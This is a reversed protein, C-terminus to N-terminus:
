GAFLGPVMQGLLHYLKALAKTFQTMSRERNVIAKQLNVRAEELDVPLLAAAEVKERIVRENERALEINKDARAIAKRSEVYKNFTQRIETELNQTLVELEAIVQERKERSERQESANRGGDYVDWAYVLNATYVDANHDKNRFILHHNYDFQFDLTTKDKAHALAINESALDVAKLQARIAPNTRKAERIIDELTLEIEKLGTDPRFAVNADRALGTLRGIRERLVVRNNEIELIEQRIEEIDLEVALIQQKLTLAGRNKENIVKLDEQRKALEQQKLALRKAEFLFDLYVDVLRLLLDQQLRERKVIEITEGVRAARPLGALRDGHYVPVKITIGNILAHSDFIDGFTEAAADTFTRGQADLLSPPFLDSIVGFRKDFNTDRFVSKLTALPLQQAKAFQLRRHAANIAHKQAKLEFNKEVLGAILEPLGMLLPGAVIPPPAIEAQGYYPNIRSTRSPPPRRAPPRPKVRPPPPPPEERQRPAQELRPDYTDEPILEDPSVIEERAFLGAPLALLALCFLLTFLPNV